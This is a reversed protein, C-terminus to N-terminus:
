TFTFKALVKSFLQIKINEFANAKDTNGTCRSVTWTHSSEVQRGNRSLNNYYEKRNINDFEFSCFM